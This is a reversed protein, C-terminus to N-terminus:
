KECVPMTTNIQNCTYSGFKLNTVVVVGDKTIEISGSTPMKGKMTARAMAGPTYENNNSYIKYGNENYVVKFPLNVEDILNITTYLTKVNEIINKTSIQASTQMSKNILKTVAPFLIMIIIFLVIIVLGNEVMKIGKVNDDM